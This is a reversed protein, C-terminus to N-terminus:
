LTQIHCPASFRNGYKKAQYLAVDVASALSRDTTTINSPVSLNACSDNDSEDGGKLPKYWRWAQNLNFGINVQTGIQLPILGFTDSSAEIQMQTICNIASHKDLFVGHIICDDLTGM